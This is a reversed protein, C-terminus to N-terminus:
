EYNIIAQWHVFTRYLALHNRTIPAESNRQQTEEALADAISAKIERRADIETWPPVQSKLQRAIRVVEDKTENYRFSIISESGSQGDIVVVSMEKNKQLKLWLEIEMDDAYSGSEEIVVALDENSLTDGIAPLSTKTIKILGYANSNRKLRRTIRNQIEDIAKIDANKLKRLNELEQIDKDNQRRLVDAIKKRLGRIKKKSLNPRISTGSIAHFLCNGAGANNRLNNDDILFASGAPTRASGWGDQLQKALKADEKLQKAEQTQKDALQQAFAFDRQTNAINETEYQGKSEEARRTKLQAAEPAPKDDRKVQDAEAGVNAAEPPETENVGAAHKLPQALRGDSKIPDDTPSDNKVQQTSTKEGLDALLTDALARVQAMSHVFRPGRAARGQMILEELAEELKEPTDITGANIGASIERYVVLTANRGIGAHSVVMPEDLQRPTAELQEKHRAMLASAARIEKAELLNNDFKLGAQTLVISFQKHPNATEDTVNLRYQQHTGSDQILKPPADVRYRGGLLLSSGSNKKLESELQSIISRSSWKVPDGARPPSVFQFTGAGSDLGQLLFKECGSGSFNSQRTVDRIPSQGIRYTNTATRKTALTESTTTLDVRNAHLNVTVTKGQQLMTTTVINAKMCPINTANHEVDTKSAYAHIDDLLKRKLEETRTRM